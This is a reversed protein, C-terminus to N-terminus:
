DDRRAWGFARLACRRWETVLQDVPVRALTRMDQAATRFDPMSLPTAKM